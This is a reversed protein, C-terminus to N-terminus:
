WLDDHDDGNSNWDVCGHLTRCRGLITIIPLFLSKLGRVRSPHSRSIHKVRDIGQLNWDVCGHLTRCCYAPVQWSPGIIEIWAGTFPAVLMRGHSEVPTCSIEIWAGTFPAVFFIRWVADQNLWKLGRVRSPHSSFLFLFPFVSRIIEIWAGTFPAVRIKQGLVNEIPIIEIWAGTFPAVVMGGNGCAPYLFNWDVCGHLTRSAYVLPRKGYKVNWDVCGHLTRRTFLLAKIREHIIEIWAGTFPAVQTVHLFFSVDSLNWDVCGHLTRCCKTDKNGLRYSNWDVCGHLTRGTGGATTATASGTNWDM